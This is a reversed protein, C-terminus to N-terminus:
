PRRIGRGQPARDVPRGVGALLGFVILSVGIIVPTGLTEDIWSEFVAGVAAAPMTSLLLLWALRGEPTAPRSATFSSASGTACTCSSTRASTSSRPSSRASTSPSTSRRRRGRGLRLRGVRVAVPRAAPAREVLDAPVGVAGPRSRPRHRPPDADDALDTPSRPVLQDVPHDAASWPRAEDWHHGVVRGVASARSSSSRVTSTPCRSTRRASRTPCTRTAGAAACCATSTPSSPRCSPQPQRAVDQRQAGRHRRRARRRRTPRAGARRPQPADPRVPAARVRRRGPGQDGPRQRRGAHGMPVRDTLFLGILEGSSTRMEEGVVVRCPLREALEVAGAIANHDTICLVDIGSEVVAREIEDPTTTSDGSWMTHSHLDVRVWGTPVPESLHPHRVSAMPMRHLYRRLM